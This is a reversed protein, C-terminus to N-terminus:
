SLSRRTMPCTAWDADCFAKLSLSSSASLFLGQGPARKIYRVLKLAAQWHVDTPSSMFQSLVPYSIDPRTITLYILQGVLRRYVSADSLACGTSDQLKLHAEMPISSPKAGLLGTTELLSLAYKRQHIYIGASSRAIEIGLFYNLHGLDKLKFQSALYDKVKAIQKVCSGTLIIDDVYVLLITFTNVTKLYFLSTDGRSQVFGFQLLAFRFKDFWERPSQKLGYISKILRCVPNKGKFIAPIPVGPPIKMYVEEHLDGNLFANTIDLQSIHWNQIAAISLILRVTAMKAVPAFTQFYDIGATQTFGKAVLRAKYRDLTGDSKYKVKYIWKCGVAKKNPPLTTIEWTKNIELANLEVQMAKCWNSDKVAQSYFLPEHIATSNAVFKQYSPHFQHISDVLQIPYKVASNVLSSSQKQITSPLGTYDAFKAPLLKTRVPRTPPESSPIISGTSPASNNQSESNETVDPSQFENSLIPQSNSSTHLDKSAASVPELDHIFTSHSPFMLSSSPSGTSYYPFVTEYFCVDRSVFMHGTTLDMLKYGKQNQPYGLFVCKIARQAFKDQRKSLTSAYALCGFVKMNPRRKMNTFTM